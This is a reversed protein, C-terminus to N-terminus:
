FEDLESADDPILFAGAVNATEPTILRHIHQIEGSGEFRFWGEISDTNDGNDFFRLEGRLRRM